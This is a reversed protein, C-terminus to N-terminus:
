RCGDGAPWGQDPDGESYGVASYELPGTAVKVPYTLRANDEDYCGMLIGIRRLADTDGCRGTEHYALLKRADEESGSCTWEGARLLRVIEPICERNWEPLLEFVDHGGFNGYGDYCEERIWKGYKRQFPPPVLLYSDRRVNDLMQVTNGTDAYMWSFQGMTGEKGPRGMRGPPRM